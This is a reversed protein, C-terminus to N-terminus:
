PFVRAPARLVGALSSSFELLSTGWGPGYILSLGPSNLIFDPYPSVRCINYLWPAPFRFGLRELTTSCLSHRGNICDWEPKDALQSGPCLFIDGLTGIQACLVSIPFIFLTQRWASSVSTRVKKKKKNPRGDGLSFGLPFVLLFFGKTPRVVPIRNPTGM